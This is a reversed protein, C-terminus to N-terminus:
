RADEVKKNEKDWSFGPSSKISSQISYSKVAYHIVMAGDQQISEVQFAYLARIRSKSILVAYTHGPQVPQDQRFSNDGGVVRRWNFSRSTTVQALPIQGLDAILTFDDGATSASVSPESGCAGDYLLDPANMSRSDDSLFLASEAYSGRCSYPASLTKTNIEHLKPLSGLSQAQAELTCGTFNLIMMASMLIGNTRKM